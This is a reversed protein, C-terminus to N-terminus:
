SSDYVLPPASSLDCNMHAHGPVARCRCRAGAATTTANLACNDEAYLARHLSFCGLGEETASGLSRRRMLRRREAASPQQNPKGSLIPGNCAFLVESSSEAACGLYWRLSFTM